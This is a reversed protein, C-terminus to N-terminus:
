RALPKKTGAPLAQLRKRIQRARSILAPGESREFERILSEVVTLLAGDHEAFRAL